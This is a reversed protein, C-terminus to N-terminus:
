NVIRDFRGFKSAFHPDRRCRALLALVEPVIGQGDRALGSLSLEGVRVDAVFENRLWAEFAGRVEDDAREIESWISRAVYDPRGTRRAILGEVGDDQEVNSESAAGM